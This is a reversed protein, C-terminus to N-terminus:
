ISLKIGYVAYFRKKSASDQKRNTGIWSKWQSNKLLKIVDTQQLQFETPENNARLWSNMTDCFEELRVWDDNKNQSLVCKSMLFEDLNEMKRDPQIQKKGSTIEDYLAKMSAPQKLHLSPYGENIYKYAAKVYYTFVHDTHKKLRDRLKYDPTKCNKDQPDYGNQGPGRFYIDQCLVLLRRQWASDNDEPSVTIVNNGMLVLVVNNLKPKVSSVRQYKDAENNYGNGSIQKLLRINLGNKDSQRQHSESAEEVIGIKLSKLISLAFGQGSQSGNGYAFHKRDITKALWKFADQACNAWVTKGSMGKLQVWNICYNHGQNPSILMGHVLEHFLREEETHWISHIFRDYVNDETKLDPLYNVDLTATFFDHITRDAVELTKINIKKGNRIPFEFEIEDLKDAFNINHPLYMQNKVGIIFSSNLIKKRIGDLSILDVQSNYAMRNLLNGVTLSIVYNVAKSNAKKWLKSETEWMYYIPNVDGEVAILIKNYKKFMRCVREHECSCLDYVDAEPLMKAGMIKGFDSQLRELVLNRRMQLERETM